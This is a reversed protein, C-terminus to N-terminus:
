RLGEDIGQVLGGRFTEDGIVADGSRAKLDHATGTIWEPWAEREREHHLGGAFPRADADGLGGLDVVAMPEAGLDLPDEVGVALRRQDFFENASGFVRDTEDARVDKWDEHDVERLDRPLRDHSIGVDLLDVRRKAVAQREVGRGVAVACKRRGRHAGM